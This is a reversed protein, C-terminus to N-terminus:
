YYTIWVDKLLIQSPHLTFKNMWFYLTCNDYHMTTGM